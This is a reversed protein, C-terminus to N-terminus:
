MRGFGSASIGDNIYLHNKEIWEFTQDKYPDLKSRRKKRTVHEPIGRLYKHGTNRAIITEKVILRVSCGKSARERLSIDTKSRLM